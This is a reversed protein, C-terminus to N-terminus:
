NEFTNRDNKKLPVSFDINQWTYYVQKLNVQM